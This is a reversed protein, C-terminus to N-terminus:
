GRDTERRRRDLLMNVGVGAAVLLGGFFTARSFGRATLLDLAVGAFVQGVFSLLTLRFASVRPVIVNFLLVVLVGLAGGFYAWAGPAPAAPAFLARQGGALLLVAASVPLGVIHNVFSGQLAGIRASLNANVSRSLVVTVGAGFSLAVAYLVGQAPRDLMVAIGAAAFLLGALTSKHLPRRPMGFLGFGDISLSAATQGLLGLAVLGTISIKGFSFNNFVTSLVGIVGGLYLWPQRARSFPVGQRRLLLLLLAFLSGVVHIVVAAGFIGCYETLVGNFTVMVAILAGTLLSLLDYM